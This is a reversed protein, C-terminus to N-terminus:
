YIWVRFTTRKQRKTIIHRLLWIDLDALFWIPLRKYFTTSSGEKKWKASTKIIRTSSIDPQSSILDNRSIASNWFSTFCIVSVIWFTAFTWSMKEFIFRNSLLSHEITKSAEYFPASSVKTRLKEAGNVHVFFSGDQSLQTGDAAVNYDRSPARVHKKWPARIEM